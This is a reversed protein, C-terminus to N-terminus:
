DITHQPTGKFAPSQSGNVHMQVRANVQIFGSVEDSSTAGEDEIEPHEPLIQPAKKM